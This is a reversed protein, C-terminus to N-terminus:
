LSHPQLHSPTSRGWNKNPLKRLQTIQVVPISHNQINCMAHEKGARFEPMYKRAGQRAGAGSADQIIQMVHRAAGCGLVGPHELVEKSAMYRIYVSSPPMGAAIHARVDDGEAGRHPCPGVKGWGMVELAHWTHVQKSLHVFNKPVM